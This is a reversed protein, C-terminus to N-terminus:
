HDWPHKWGLLVPGDRKARYMLWFWMGAGLATATLRYIPAVHPVPPKPPGMAPIIRPEDAATHAITRAGTREPRGIDSSEQICQTDAKQFQPALIEEADDNEDETPKPRSELFHAPQRPPLRHISSTLM